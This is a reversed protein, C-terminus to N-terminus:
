NFIDSILDLANRIQNIEEVSFRERIKEEYRKKEQQIQRRIKLGDSSLYIVFSRRDLPNTSRIFYGKRVLSDIVRSGRSPSLGMKRSLRNCTIREDIEIEVIGKYEALSIQCISRIQKEDKMCGQKLASILDLLSEKM